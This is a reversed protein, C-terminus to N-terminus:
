DYKESKMDVMRVRDQRRVQIQEVVKQKKRSQPGRFSLSIASIIAVLLLIGALEFSLVYDTYLVAGLEKVNSYNAAQSVPHAYKALGFHQPGIVLVMAAVLLAVIFAGIPLYRVFGEKLSATEVNMMMVVFLFLTMVAGVYVLVLVLALFEAELLLWLGSCAIFAAVLFLACRIPNRLVVVMVSSFILATSFAYFMLSQFEM